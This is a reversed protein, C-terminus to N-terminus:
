PGERPLRFRRHVSGNRERIEVDTHSPETRIEVRGGDPVQMQVRDGFRHTILIGDKIEIQPM